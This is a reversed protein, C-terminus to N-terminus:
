ATLVDMSGSETLFSKCLSKYIEQYEESEPSVEFETGKFAAIRKKALEEAREKTFDAFYRSGKPPAFDPLRVDSHWNVHSMTGDCASCCVSFPSVADRGNWIKESKGCKRCAYEMLLFSDNHKFKRPPCTGPKSNDCWAPMAEGERVERLETKFGQKEWKQADRAAYFVEKPTDAVAMAVVGGCNCFAMYNRKM